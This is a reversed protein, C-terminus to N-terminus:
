TPAVTTRRMSRSPTDCGNPITDVEAPTGKRLLTRHRRTSIMASSKHLVATADLVAGEGHAVAEIMLSDPGVALKSAHSVLASM